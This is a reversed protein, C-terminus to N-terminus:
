VYTQGFWKETKCFWFAEINGKFVDDKDFLTEFDSVCWLDSLTSSVAVGESLCVGLCDLGAVLSAAEVSMISTATSYKINSSSSM